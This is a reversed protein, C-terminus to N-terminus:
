GAPQEKEQQLAARTDGALQMLTRVLGPWDVSDRSPDAACRAALQELEQCAAGLRTAGVALSAGKLRHAASKLATYQIPPSSATTRITVLAEPMEELYLDIMRTVLDPTGPAALGPTGPAALGPTGPAALARVEALRAPDLLPLTADSAGASPPPTAGPPVEQGGAGTKRMAAGAAAWAGALSDQGPVASRGGAGATAGQRAQVAAAARAMAENLESMRIPRALFDNAGAAEYEQRIQLLAGSTVVIIYPRQEPPWQAMIQRTAELGGMVPMYTDMLIVDYAQCRLKDLVEQGNAALDAAYGLHQLMLQDLEQNIIFDDAALIRLAQPATTPTPPAACPAEDIM